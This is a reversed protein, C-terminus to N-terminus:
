LCLPFDNKKIKNKTLIQADLQKILKWQGEKEPKVVNTHFLYFFSVWSINKSFKIIIIIM